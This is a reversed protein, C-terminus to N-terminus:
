HERLVCREHIEVRMRCYLVHMYLIWDCDDKFMSLFVFESLYSTLRSKWISWNLLKLQNVLLQVQLINNSRECRYCEVSLIFNIGRYGFVGVLVEQFLDFSGLFWDDRFLFFGSFILELVPSVISLVSPLEKSSLWQGCLFSLILSSNSNDTWAM